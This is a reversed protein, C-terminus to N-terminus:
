IAVAGNGESQEFHRRTRTEVTVLLSPDSFCPRIRLILLNWQEQMNNM